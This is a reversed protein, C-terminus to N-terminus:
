RLDVEAHPQGGSLKPYGPGRDFFAESPVPMNARLEETAAEDVELGASLVVGYEHRACDLSVKGDRVDDAVRQPEREFPSGWGGGGTTRVRVIEGERVPFDDVLGDM